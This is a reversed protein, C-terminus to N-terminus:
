SNTECHNCDDVIGTSSLLNAVTHDITSTECAPQRNFKYSNYYNNELCKSVIVEWLGLTSISLSDESFNLGTEESLERLFAQHLQFLIVIIAFVIESKSQM